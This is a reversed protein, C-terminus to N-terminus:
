PCADCPPPGGGFIYAILYVADSINVILNCDCDGALLPDPAPGGGFIYAILYVADSINVIENGDGDGCVFNKVIDFCIAPADPNSMSTSQFGHFTPPYAGQYDGFRWSGSPPFYINDVCFGDPLEDHSPLIDVAMTYCLAHVVHGPLTNTGMSAGAIAISDPSLNDASSTATHALEFAGVADGVPNVYGFAGHSSDFEHDLGISFEFPLSLSLLDFENKIWIEVINTEGIYATDAGCNLHVEIDGSPAGIIDFAVPPADPDSDENKVGQFRPHHEPNAGYSDQCVWDDGASWATHINDIVFGDALGAQGPPIDVAVTFILTHTGYSPLGTGGSFDIGISDLGSNDIGQDLSTVSFAGAADGELKVYGLSGYGADFEFDRGINFEFGLELAQEAFHNQLWFEVINTYGVLAVNAGGNLRVEIDGRNQSQVIDHVLPPCDPNEESTNGL